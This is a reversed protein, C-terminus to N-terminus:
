SSSGEMRAPASATQSSTKKDPQTFFAVLLQARHQKPNERSREIGASEVFVAPINREMDNIFAAFQQFPAEFTVTLWM